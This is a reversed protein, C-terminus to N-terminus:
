FDSLSYFTDVKRPPDAQGLILELMRLASNSISLKM